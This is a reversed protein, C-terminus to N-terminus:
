GAYHVLDDETVDMDSMIDDLIDTESEDEDKEYDYIYGNFYNPNTTKFNGDVSVDMYYYLTVNDTGDDYKDTLDVKYVFVANGAGYSKDYAYYTAVNNISNITITEEDFYHASYKKAKKEIKNKTKEEIVKRTKKPIDSWNKYVKTLGKVRFTKTSETVKLKLSKATEESYKATITVKDGNSLSESKDISYSVTDMFTSVDSNTKDYDPECGYNYDSNVYGGGDYGEFDVKCATMLNVPTKKVVNYVGTGLLCIVLAGCVGAVIIANKKGKETKVYEKLSSIVDAGSQQLEEVSLEKGTRELYITYASVAITAIEAILLLVVSVKISTINSYLSLASGTVSEAADWNGNIVANVAKLIQGVRIVTPLLTLAIVESVGVTGFALLSSKRKDKLKVWRYIYGGIVVLNLLFVIYFFTVSTKVTGLAKCLEEFGSMDYLKNTVSKYKFFLSITIFFVIVGGVISAILLYLRKLDFGNVSSKEVSAKVKEAFDNVKKSTDQKSEVVPIKPLAVGKPQEVKKEEVTEAVDEKTQEVNEEEVSEVVDDKIEDEEILKLKSGCKQCFGFKDEYVQGCNLCKKM